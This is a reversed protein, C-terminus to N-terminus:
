IRHCGASNGSSVPQQKRSIVAPRERIYLKYDSSTPVNTFHVIGDSDIFMYIDAAAVPPLLLAVLLVLTKIGM